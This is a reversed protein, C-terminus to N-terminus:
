GINAKKVKQNQLEINVRDFRLDMTAAYPTDDERTVRIEYGNFSALEKAEELSMSIFSKLFEQTENIRKM